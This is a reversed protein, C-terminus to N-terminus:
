YDKSGGCIRYLTLGGPPTLRTKLDAPMFVRDLDRIRSLPVHQNQSERLLMTLADAWEFSDTRIVGVDGGSGVPGHM